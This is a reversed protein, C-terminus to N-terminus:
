ARILLVTAKSPQVINHADSGGASETTIDLSTGTVTLLPSFLHFSQGAGTSNQGKLRSYIGVEDHIRQYHAHAPLEATTLTHTELGVAGGITDAQANTIRGASNGGLNDLGIPTYGRYDPTNFTTSGDGDGHPSHIATHTGSQTGTTDIAAGNPAASVRFTDTTMGALVVYYTTALALGTPLAGTTTFKVPDNENRGHATWTVVGPNANTITVTSTQNLYKYLSAYTTRSIAQGACFVFGGRVTSMPSMIIEGVMSPNLLIFDTGDYLLQAKHGDRIECRSLSYGGDVKITKAGLGDLNLTPATTLNANTFVVYYRQGTTYASIGLTATYTDTGSATGYLVIANLITQIGDFGTLAQLNTGDSFVIAYQNATLVLTAEGNITEAGAPDITISGSGDNWVVVCHGNGLTAAATYNLSWTGSTARIVSMNDNLVVTYTGTKVQIRWATGAMGPFTNKIVTKLLRLHDDGQSKPDTAGIPNTTVLDSIYTGTELGM